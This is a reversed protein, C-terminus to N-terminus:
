EDEQKLNDFILLDDISVDFLNALIGLNDVTPVAKGNFWKYVAQFSGLGCVNQIEQVSIEKEAALRKINKGTEILNVSPFSYKDNETYITNAHFLQYVNKQYEPNFIMLLEYKPTSFSTWNGKESGGIKCTWDESIEEPEGANEKVITFWSEFTTLNMTVANPYLKYKEYFEECSKMLQNDYEEDDKFYRMLFKMHTGQTYVNEPEDDEFM